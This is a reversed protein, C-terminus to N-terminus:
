QRSGQARTKRGKSNVLTAEREGKGFGIIHRQKIAQCQLWGVLSIGIDLHATQPSTISARALSLTNIIKLGRALRYRVGPIECLHLSAKERQDVSPFYM